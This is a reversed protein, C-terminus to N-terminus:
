CLHALGNACILILTSQSAPQLERTKPVTVVLQWPWDLKSMHGVAVFHEHGDAETEWVNAAQTAAHESLRKAAMGEIGPLESILRFRVGNGGATSDPLVVNARSHAIVKGGPTSI